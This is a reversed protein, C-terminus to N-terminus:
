VTSCPYIVRDCGNFAAFRNLRRDLATEFNKTQRIGNEYWLNKVTLTKTERDNVTEVRGVFRDGYLVPLVYAGYKRKEAPTYIEWGYDFGFITRILQKDWLFPDLPAILECRPKFACGSLAEELFPTDDTLYYFSNKLGDITLESITGEEKLTRFVAHRSETTLGWM